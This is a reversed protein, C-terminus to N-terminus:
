NVPTTRTTTKSETAFSNSGLLHSELTTSEVKTVLNHKRLYITNTMWDHIIGVLKLFPRGLIIDYFDIPDKFNMVVFWVHYRIEFTKIKLCKVVGVLRTSYSWKDIQSDILNKGHTAKGMKGLM